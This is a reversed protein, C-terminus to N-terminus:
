DSITISEIAIEADVPTAEVPDIRLATIVGDWGAIESMDIDYTHIIGDGIVEFWAFKDDGYEGDDETIFFVQGVTPGGAEASMTISLQDFESAIRLGTTTMQPDEGISTM